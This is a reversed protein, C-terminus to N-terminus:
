KYNKITITNAILSIEIINCVLPDDEFFCFGDDLWYFRLLNKDINMWDFPTGSAEFLYEGIKDKISMPWVDYYMKEDKEINLYNPIIYEIYFRREEETLNYVIKVRNDM